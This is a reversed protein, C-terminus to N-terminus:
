GLSSCVEPLKLYNLVHQQGASDLYIMQVKVVNCEWAYNDAESLSIVKAIDLQMGYEYDVATTQAQLNSSLSALTMVTASLWLRITM